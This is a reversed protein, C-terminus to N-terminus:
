YVMTRFWCGVLLAYVSVSIEKTYCKEAKYRVAHILYDAKSVRRDTTQKMIRCPISKSPLLAFAKFAATMLYYGVIKDSM